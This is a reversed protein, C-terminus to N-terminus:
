LSAYIWYAHKLSQKKLAKPTILRGRNDVSPMDSTFGSGLIGTLESPGNPYNLVPNLSCNAKSKQDLRMAPLMARGLGCGICGRRDLLFASM